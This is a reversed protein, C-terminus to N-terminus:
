KLKRTKFLAIQNFISLCQGNFSNLLADPNLPFLTSNFSSSNFANCLKAASGTNLTHSHTTLHLSPISLQLPVKFVVAKHDTVLMDVLNLCGLSFGSSLVLDLTHGRSHTAGKVSQILNFLTQSRFSSPNLSHSPCCVHINFDGLILVRDYKPMVISLYDITLWTESLGIVSFPQDFLPM